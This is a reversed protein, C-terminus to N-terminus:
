KESKMLIKQITSELQSQTLAGVHGTYLSGDANIILTSPFAYVGYTYVGDLETDCYVPFTYGNDAVFEKVKEVTDRDGDTANVMVFAVQDGYKEYMNQFYPMENKCPGCWTAWFNVIIPKGAFESLKVPNGSLDYMTFDPIQLEAPQTTEPPETVGPVDTAADTEVPAETEPAETEFTTDLAEGFPDFDESLNNYLIVAGVTLIVLVVLVIILKLNKM